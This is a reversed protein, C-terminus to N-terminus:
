IDPVNEHQLVLGGSSPLGVLKCAVTWNEARSSKVVCVQPTLLFKTVCLCVCLCVCVCVSVPVSLSTKSM